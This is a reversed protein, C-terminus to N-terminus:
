IETRKIAGLTAIFVPFFCAWSILLLETYYDVGFLWVFLPSLALIPIARFFNAFVTMVPTLRAVFILAGCLLLATISGATLGLLWLITTSYLDHFALDLDTVWAITASFFNGIELLM